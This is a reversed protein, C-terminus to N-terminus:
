RREGAVTLPLTALGRVIFSQAQWDLEPSTMSLHEPRQFLHRFAVEAQLQALGGGLCGHMGYGFALHRSAQRAIDFTDPAPFQAPDRNAAALCVLIQEGAKVPAGAIDIDRTAVRKSQQLPTEYRLVEDVARSVLRPDRRLRAEQDPHRLLAAIGNGILSKTTENGAVFCMICVFVLEEASLMDEGSRSAILRSVLDEGPRARRAEILRHLFVTYDDLVTSVHDFDEATMLGPELLFRIDHTWQGIQRRMGAEIGMWDCMITLPLPEAFDAIADMGGRAWARDALQEVVRAIHPELSAVAERSFARGALRRLRAHDPNDTFVLSKDALREITEGPRRQFRGAQKRILRPIQSASFSRDRLVALVDAYRTLVLMGLTRHMPSTERLRRYIAYPDARFEASFPNFRAPGRPTSEAELTSGTTTFSHQAQSM